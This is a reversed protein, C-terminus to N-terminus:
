FNCVLIKIRCKHNYIIGIDCTRFSINYSFLRSSSIVGSAQFDAELAVEM